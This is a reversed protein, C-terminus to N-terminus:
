LAYMKRLFVIAEHPSLSQNCDPGHIHVLGRKADKLGVRIQFYARSAQRIKTSTTLIRDDLVVGSVVKSLQDYVQMTLACAVPDQPARNIVIVNCFVNM